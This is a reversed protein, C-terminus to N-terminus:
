RRSNIRRSSANWDGILGQLCHLCRSTSLVSKEPELRAEMWFKVGGSETTRHLGGVSGKPNGAQVQDQFWGDWEGEQEMGRMTSPFFEIGQFQGNQQQSPRGQELGTGEQLPTNLCYTKQHCPFYFIERKQWWGAFVEWVREGVRSDFVQPESLGCTDSKGFWWSIFRNYM